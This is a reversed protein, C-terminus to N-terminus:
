IIVVDLQPLSTGCGGLGNRQICNCGAAGVFDVGTSNSTLPMKKEIEYSKHSIAADKRMVVPGNSM